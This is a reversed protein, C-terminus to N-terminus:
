NKGVQHQVKTHLQHLHAHENTFDLLGLKTDFPRHHADVRADVQRDQGVSHAFATYV